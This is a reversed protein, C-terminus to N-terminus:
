PRRDPASALRTTRSAAPTAPDADSSSAAPQASRATATAQPKPGRLEWEAEVPQQQRPRQSPPIEALYRLCDDIVPECLADRGAATDNDGAYAVRRVQGDIFLFQVHCNGGSSYNVSTNAIGSLVPASVAVNNGATSYEYSWININNKVQKHDPFGACLTIDDETLGLLATKASQVLTERGPVPVCSAAALATAVASARLLVSLPRAGVKM